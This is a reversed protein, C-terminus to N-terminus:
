WSIKVLKCDIAKSRIQEIPLLRIYVPWIESTNYKEPVEFKIKVDDNPEISMAGNSYDNGIKIQVPSNLESCTGTLTLEIGKTNRTYIQVVSKFEGTKTNWGV